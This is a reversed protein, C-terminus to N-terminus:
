WLYPILRWTGKKYQEYQEGFWEGLSKEEILIRYVVAPIGGAVAIALGGWNGMSLPIGLFLCILGLYAPHRVMTYIGVTVLKHAESTEVHVSYQKGLAKRAMFRIMIGSLTLATGLGRLVWLPTRFGMWKLGLTDVISFIMAGYWGMNILWYSGQAQKQGKSQQQGSFSFSRELVAWLIFGGLGIYEFIRILNM